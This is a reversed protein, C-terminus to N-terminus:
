QLPGPQIVLGGGVQELPNVLHAPSPRLWPTVPRGLDLGGALLRSGYDRAQLGARAPQGSRATPERDAGAQLESGSAWSRSDPIQFPDAAAL